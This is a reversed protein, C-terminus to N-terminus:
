NEELVGSGGQPNGIIVDIVFTFPLSATIHSLFHM